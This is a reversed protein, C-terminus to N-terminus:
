LQSYLKQSSFCLIGTRTGFPRQTGGHMDKRVMLPVRVVTQSGSSYDFMPTPAPL